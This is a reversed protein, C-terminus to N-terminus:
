PQRFQRIRAVAQQILQSAEPEIQEKLTEVTVEYLRLGAQTKSTLNSPAQPDNTMGFVLRHTKTWESDIGMARQAGVILDNDGETLRGKQVLVIRTLGWMLGHSANILRGPHDNQLGNLGKHVEEILGVLETSAYANAKAQHESTWEFTQSRQQLKKFVDDPDILIRAQRLNSLVEVIQAPDSLWDETQALNVQSIVVLQDDIYATQAPPAPHDRTICVLDVDSYQSAEGRAHSGMLAVAIMHKGYFREAAAQIFDM